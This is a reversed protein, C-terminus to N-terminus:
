WNVMGEMDCNKGTKKASYNKNWNKISYNVPSILYM